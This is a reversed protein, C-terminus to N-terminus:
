RPPRRMALVPPAGTGITITASPQFGHRAYFPTNRPKSNELYAAVGEADAYETGAAVLLGGIGRGQHEPQVGVHALYWHPERPHVKEIRSLAALARPVHRGFGRAVAPGSRLVERFPLRWDDVPHWIAVGIVQGHQDVAAITRHEPKRLETDVFAGYVHRLRPLPDAPAGTLWNFVPDDSFAAALCAVAANREAPVLGRVDIGVARCPIRM